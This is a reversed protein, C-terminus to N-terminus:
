HKLIAQFARGQVIKYFSDYSETSKLNYPINFFYAIAHKIQFGDGSFRCESNRVAKFVFRVALKNCTSPQYKRYPVSLFRIEVAAFLLHALQDTRQNKAIQM